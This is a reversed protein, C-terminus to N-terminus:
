YLIFFALAYGVLLIWFGANVGKDMLAYIKLYKWLQKNGISTEHIIVEPTKLRLMDILSRQPLQFKFRSEIYFTFGIQILKLAATTYFIWRLLYFM